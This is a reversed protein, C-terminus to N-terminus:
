TENPEQTATAEEESDPEVIIATQQMGRIKWLGNEKSLTIDYRGGQWKPVADPVEGTRNSVVRGTIDKVEEVVTCTAYNDWPWAWLKEIDLSYDYDTINYDGYVSAGNFAGALAGDNSLFDYHFCKNLEQADERTLIVEVRKEMGETLIIYVNALNLCMFFGCVLMGGLICIIILRSAIYWTFRRLYQM